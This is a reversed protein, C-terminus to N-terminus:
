ALVKALCSPIFLCILVYVHGEHLECHLSLLLSRFKNPPLGGWFHGLILHMCFLQKSVKGWSGSM